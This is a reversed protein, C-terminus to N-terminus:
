KDKKKAAKDAKKKAAKDAKKKAAAEKEKQSIAPPGDDDDEDEDADLDEDVEEAEEAEKAPPPDHKVSKMSKSPGASKMYAKYDAETAETIHGNDLATMFQKSHRARKFNVEVVQDNVIHVGSKPDAFTSAKKGLRFFRTNSNSM